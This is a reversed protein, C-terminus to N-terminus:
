LSLIRNAIKKGYALSESVGRDEPYYYSTDAIFLNPAIECKPTHALYEPECIPQSCTYRSVAIDLFDSDSLDPNITMFYKKIKKKFSEDTDHFLDHDVPVYYPVYVIHVRGDLPNLNTYEIIGPIDMEPDNTNVWFCDTLAQKLKVIVCVCGINIKNKFLNLYTSSLISKFIDSVYPLPITSVVCDFEDSLTNRGTAYTVIFSKEIKNVSIVSSSFNIKCGFTTLENQLTEIWKASGGELYGLKEKMLSYRSRGIRRIRSWIWAASLSNSYEYFKLSFLNEWLKEWAENGVWKRIWHVANKKDLSGAHSRKVALFAHLGYRFKAIFSIGKFKLLALPNGWYQLRHEFWYCMKTEKWKLDKYLGLEKLLDFFAIDSTCHFHYYREINLGSFNFSSTMGGLCNNKEFLTVSVGKKSLEYATSLGMPGAGIVAVKMNQKM